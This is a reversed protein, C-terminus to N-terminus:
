RPREAPALDEVGVFVDAGPVLAVLGPELRPLGLEGLPCGLGDFCWLPLRSRGALLVRLRGGSADMFGLTARSGAPSTTPRATARAGVVATRPASRGGLMTTM